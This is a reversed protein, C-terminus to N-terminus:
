YNKLIRKSEVDLLVFLSLILPRKKLYHPNLAQTVAIKQAITQLHYVPVTRKDWKQALIPCFFRGQTGFTTKM